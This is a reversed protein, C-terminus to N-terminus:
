ILMFHISLEAVFDTIFLLDATKKEDKYVIRCHFSWNPQNKQWWLFFMKFIQTWIEDGVSSFKRFINQDLKEM